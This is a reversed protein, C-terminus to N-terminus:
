FRALFEGVRSVEGSGTTPLRLLAIGHRELLADKMADRRLQSPNDAHYTFGDVEIVGLVRDTTRNSIVFDVSSRNRVFSSEAHSLDADTPLLHQLFVQYHLGLHVFADAEMLQQLTVLMAEESRYPVAGRLRGALARLTDAYETYLVDFVSVISSQSVHGPERQAIFDVLDRLHQCEEPLNPNSVVVLRDQARSVAVNILRPDDAFTALRTGAHSADVVTSMVITAKERGQFKHVTDAEVGPVAQAILNAQDRFPTIIGVTSLAVAGVHVPLAEQVVVDIERQNIRGGMTLARAHEGPSTHIMALATSERAQRMPILQGGYFKRNCFDIIRPDSRYHERLMTRPLADGYLALLSSLVNHQGYDYPQLGESLGLGGVDQAIHPLQRTDGVVIVNRAFSMALVAIAMDVQSAEDIILYDVLRGPGVTAPLSHCTSLLVPYNRVVADRDRWLSDSTFVPSQQDSYREFLAGQFISLSLSQMHQAAHVLVPSTLEAECQAIEQEIDAIRAGFYRSQVNLTFQPDEIDVRSTLGYRWRRRLRWRLKDLGSAVFKRLELEALLELYRSAPWTASRAPFASTTSPAYTESFQIRERELETLTSRLQARQRELVHVRHVSASRHALETPHDAGPTYSNLFSNLTANREGQKAVFEQRKNQNGLPAAIFGHGSDALKDYVNEVAANNFSVVAVTAAPDRVINAILNVISQTKGTGPPGEIVSIQHTLARTLADRQSLNSAFPFILEPSDRTVTAPTGDLYTALVSDPHVFTLKSFARILPDDAPHAAVVSEFYTMLEEVRPKTRANAIAVVESSPYSRFAPGNQTRYHVRTWTGVPTPFYEIREVNQWPTGRVEILTDTSLAHAEAPNAVCVNEANYKYPYRTSRFRIAYRHGEHKLSVISATKDEFVGTDKNRVLILQESLDGMAVAM